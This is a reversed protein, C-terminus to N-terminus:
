TPFAKPLHGGKWALDCNAVENLTRVEELTLEFCFDPPFKKPNRSVSENVRKTPVQYIEAIHRDLLANPRHPLQLIPYKTQAVTIKKDNHITEKEITYITNVM